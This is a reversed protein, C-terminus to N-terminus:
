ENNKWKVGFLDTTKSGLQHWSVKQTLCFQLRPFPLTLFLAFLTGYSFWNLGVKTSYCQKWCMTDIPFINSVRFLMPVCPAVTLCWLLANATTTVLSSCFSSVDWLAINQKALIKVRLRTIFCLLTICCKVVPKWTKSKRPLVPSLLPLLNLCTKNSDAAKTHTLYQSSSHLLLPRIRSAGAFTKLCTQGENGEGAKWRQQRWPSMLAAKSCRACHM